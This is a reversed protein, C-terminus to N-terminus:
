YISRMQGYIVWFSSPLLFNLTLKLVLNTIQYLFDLGWIYKWSDEITLSSRNCLFKGESIYLYSTNNMVQVVSIESTRIQFAMFRFCCTPLLILLIRTEKWKCLFFHFYISSTLFCSLDTPFPTGQTLSFLLLSTAENKKEKSVTLTPKNLMYRDGAFQSGPISKM